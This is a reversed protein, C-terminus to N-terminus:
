KSLLRSTRSRVTATGEWSRVGIGSFHAWLVAMAHLLRPADPLIWVESIRKDARWGRGMLRILAGLGAVHHRMQLCPLMQARQPTLWHVYGGEHFVKEVADLLNSPFHALPCKGSLLLINRRANPYRSFYLDRNRRVLERFSRGRGFSGGGQHHIRADPHVGLRWGSLDLRRGLDVDEYYGRGFSLDFGGTGLFVSRRILFAHGQLRHTRIYGGPRRLYQNLDHRAYDNGAPIIVALQPDAALAACLPPLFDESAVTDSNLVLVYSADSRAVAENVSAGFGQNKLAHHIHIGAYPLHDLMQRTEAGSADDQVYIHSISGGLCAVISDICKRTLAPANYVPIVVDISPTAPM